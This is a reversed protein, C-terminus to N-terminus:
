EITCTYWRGPILLGALIGGIAALQPGLAMDHDVAVTHRQSHADQPGVHAVGLQQFLGDIRDRRQPEGMPLLSSQPRAGRLLLLVGVLSVIVRAASLRRACSADDWAKSPAADFRAPVNPPIAPHDLVGERPEIAEPTEPDAILPPHVDM